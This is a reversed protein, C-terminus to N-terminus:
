NKPSLLQKSILILNPLFIQIIKSKKKHKTHQNIYGIKKSNNKYRERDKSPKKNVNQRYIAYKAYMRNNFVM